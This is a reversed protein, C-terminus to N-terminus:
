VKAVCKIEVLLEPLALRAVQVITGALVPKEGYVERRCQPMAAMAADMDTVYIVEEIVNEMTAGYHALVKQINVYAQRIQAVMDGQGVVHEPDVSVQGSLTITDGVKIAQAFGFDEEIPIGHYYAEKTITM